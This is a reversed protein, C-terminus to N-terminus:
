SECRKEQRKVAAILSVPLSDPPVVLGATDAPADYVRATALPGWTGDPQLYTEDGREVVLPPM